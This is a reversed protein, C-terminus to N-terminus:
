LLGFALAPIGALVLTMLIKRAAPDKVLLWALLLGLYIGVGGIRPTPHVHFKQVGIVSDATLHGHHRQTLVIVISIVLATLVALAIAPAHDAILSTSLM